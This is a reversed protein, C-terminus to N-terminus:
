LVGKTSPVEGELRPEARTAQRLALALAKFAAEARHHDNEGSLLRLHLNLRGAQALSALFHPVMETPLAGLYDRRFPLEVAAYPRGGLDVAALALAEDLPVVAHGFRAIGRREGLAHDLAQGLALGVDEVLHHAERDLDGRAEISIDFLGHRALQELLHDLMGIGTAISGRGRGDLDLAVEVRTEGTERLVRAQRSM